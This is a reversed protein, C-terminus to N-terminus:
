GRLIQLLGEFIHPGEVNHASSVFIIGIATAFILSKIGRSSTDIMGTQKMM